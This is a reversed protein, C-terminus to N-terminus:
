SEGTHFCAIYWSLYTTTFLEKSQTGNVHAPAQMTSMRTESELDAVWRAHPPAGLSIAVSLGALRMRSALSIGYRSNLSKDITQALM